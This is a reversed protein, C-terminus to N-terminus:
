KTAQIAIGETMTTVTTKARILKRRALDLNRDVTDETSSVQIMLTTRTQM